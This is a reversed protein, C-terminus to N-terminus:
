SVKQKTANRQQKRIYNMNQWFFSGGSNQSNTFFWRWKKANKAFLIALRRQCFWSNEHDSLSASGDTHPGCSALATSSISSANRFAIWSRLHHTTPKEEQHYLSSLNRLWCGFFSETFCAFFKQVFFIITRNSWLRYPFLIFHECWVTRQRGKFLPVFFDYIM